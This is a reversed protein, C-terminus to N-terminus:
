YSPCSMPVLHEAYPLFSHNRKQVHLHFAVSIWVKFFTANSCPRSNSHASTSSFLSVKFLNLSHSICSSFLQTPTYPLPTSFCFILCLSETAVLSTVPVSVLTLTLIQSYGPSLILAERIAWNTFFGGAICSVRTRNRPRASQSSFPYTVWELIRPSGKHSLQYIWRCCQLGPNLGQTPFTGQLLSLSGM